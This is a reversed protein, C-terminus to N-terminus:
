GPLLPPQACGDAPARLWGPPSFRTQIFGAPLEVPRRKVGWLQCDLTRYQVAESLHDSTSADAGALDAITRAVKFIRGATIDECRWWQTHGAGQVTSGSKGYHFRM